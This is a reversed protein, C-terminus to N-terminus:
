HRSSSKSTACTSSTTSRRSDSAATARAGATALEDLVRQPSKSRFRMTTRTSAASPATTSQAGGAAARRDRVPALRRAADARPVLGLDDARAFYEDYDPVPLDDLTSWRRRRHRPSSVATPGTARSRSDGGPDTAAALARLLRPFATDGEGVVAFDICDVTRVLELGMEGDFNAGGFLDRHRPLAGQAPPRARVVRHEAPLHSSFGVVRVEHWPVTPWSRTSSPLCTTNGPAGCGIASGRRRRARVLLKGDHDPAADGFAEVSFLWDGVM